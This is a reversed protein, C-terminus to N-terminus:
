SMASTSAIAACAMRALFVLLNRRLRFFYVLRAGDPSFAARRRAKIQASNCIFDFFTSSPYQCHLAFTTYYVVNEACAPNYSLQNSRWTSMTSTM